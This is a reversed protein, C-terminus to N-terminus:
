PVDPEASHAACEVGKGRKDRVGLMAHIGQGVGVHGKERRVLACDWDVLGTRWGRWEM